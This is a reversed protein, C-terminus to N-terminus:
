TCQTHPDAVGAPKCPVAALWCEGLGTRDGGVAEESGADLWPAVQLLHGSVKCTVPVVLIPPSVCM